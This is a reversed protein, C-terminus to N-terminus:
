RSSVHARERQSEVYPHEARVIAVVQEVVACDEHSGRPSVRWNCHINRWTPLQEVPGIAKRWRAKTGGAAGAIMTALLGLLEDSTHFHIRTAM